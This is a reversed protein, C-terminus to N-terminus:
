KRKAYMFTFPIDEITSNVDTVSYVSTREDSPLIAIDYDSNTLLTLDIYDPDKIETNVITNVFNLIKNINFNLKSYYRKNLNFTFKDKSIIVPFDVETSMDRASITTKAKPQSTEINFEKFETKDFCLPLVLEIYLSIESEIKSTKALVNRGEYYGYAITSFETKLASPPPNTYGGQLGILRVADILSSSICNQISDQLPIIQQPVIVEQKITQKFAGRFFFGISLVLIVTIAVVIFVTSQGRKQTIM